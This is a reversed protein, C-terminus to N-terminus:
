PILTLSSSKLCLSCRTCLCQPPCPDLMNLVSLLSLRTCLSKHPTHPLHPCLPGFPHDGLVQCCAPMLRRASKLCSPAQCAGTTLVESINTCETSLSCGGKHRWSNGGWPNEDPGTAKVGLHADKARNKRRFEVWTAGQTSKLEAQIPSM